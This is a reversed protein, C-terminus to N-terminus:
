TARAAISEVPKSTCWTLRYKTERLRDLSSEPRSSVYKRRQGLSATKHSQRVCAMRNTMAAQPGPTSVLWNPLIRFGAVSFTRMSRSSAVGAVVAFGIMTVRTVAMVNLRDDRGFM